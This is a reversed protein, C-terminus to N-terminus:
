LRPTAYVSTTKVPTSQIKIQLVQKLDYKVAKMILVLLSVQLNLVALVLTGM